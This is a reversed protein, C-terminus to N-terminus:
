NSSINPNSNRERISVPFRRDLGEAVFQPLWRVPVINYYRHDQWNRAEMWFETMREYIVQARIEDASTSQFDPLGVNARIVNIQEVAGALDGTELRHEAIILVPEQWRSVPLPANAAAYKTQHWWLGNVGEGLHETHANRPDRLGSSPDIRDVFPLGVGLNGLNRDGFSEFLANVSGPPQYALEVLFDPDAALAQAAFDAASALNSTTGTEFFLARHTRALTAYAAAEFESDGLAKLRRAGEELIPLTLQYVQVPTNPSGPETGDALPIPEFSDALTVLVIAEWFYSRAVGQHGDPNAVLDLLRSRADRIRWLSAHTSNQWDEYNANTRPDFRGREPDLYNTQTSPQMIDDAIVGANRVTIDFMDATAAPPVNTLSPILRVDAMDEETMNSPNEVDFLDTCGVLLITLWGVRLATKLYHM